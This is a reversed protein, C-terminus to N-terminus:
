IIQQRHTVSISCLSDKVQWQKDFTYKYSVPKQWPWQCEEKKRRRWRRRRDKSDWRLYDESFRWLNGSHDRPLAVSRIPRTFIGLSMINFPRPQRHWLPSKNLAATHVTVSLITIAAIFFMFLLMEKGTEWIFFPPLSFVNKFIYSRTSSNRILCHIM